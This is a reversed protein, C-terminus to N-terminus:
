ERGREILYKYFEDPEICDSCDAKHRMHAPYRVFVGLGVIVDDDGYFDDLDVDFLFRATVTVGNHLTIYSKEDHRHGPHNPHPCTTETAVDKIPSNKDMCTTDIFEDMSTESFRWMKTSTM